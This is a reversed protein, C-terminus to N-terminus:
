WFCYPACEKVARLEAYFNDFHTNSEYVLDRITQDAEGTSYAQLARIATGMYDLLEQKATRVCGPVDVQQTDVLIQQMVTVPYTISTRTGTAASAYVRDYQKLQIVLFDSAEEVAAVDCSRVTRLWAYGGM